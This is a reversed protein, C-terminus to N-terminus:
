HKTQQKILILLSKEIHTMIVACMHCLVRPLQEHEEHDRDTDTDTVHM